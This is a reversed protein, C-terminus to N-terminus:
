RLAGYKMLRMVYYRAWVFIIISGLMNGVVIGWWIGTLGMDLAFAFIITILPVFILARLITAILSYLGKGIGQFLSSSLMGISIMPYFLCIIRLFTILEDTIHAADESMTFIYALQPALIFTLLAIITQVVIGTKMSYIHSFSLKDYNKEGFSYGSMTVVATSIGVLPAIAITVIRWGVTYVAVGDTNSAVIIIVNMILMMLAMSAQQTAAPVGARFIDWLINKDFSFDKFDFELYTDNKFFLWKAMLISTTGMSVITAWAAGAVGMELTYIFIPDLVMNLVSGFILANMARKSDGESRLIANAVNTFFLLISGAFIVQGYSTAMETARGAGIS